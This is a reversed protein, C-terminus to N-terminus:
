FEGEMDSKSFTDFSNYKSKRVSKEINEAYGMSILEKARDEKINQPVDFITGEEIHKQTYKDNYGKIIKIKM